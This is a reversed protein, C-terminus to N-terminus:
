FRYLISVGIEAEYDSLAIPSDSIGSNYKEYGAEAQLQWKDGFRWRGIAQIGASRYGGDLTTEPLGSNFSQEETIGFDRNVFDDSGFTVFAFLDLGMGPRSAAFTHGAALVGLWGIDSGGAMLRAAGWNSWDRGLARRVEFMGVIEEDTDGLGALAPSESEERGGEFRVGGQLLWLDNLRGRWGLEQGELFWMQNGNRRQIVFAPELETGYEDSGDYEAEYEVGAGLSFAWGDGASIDPVSPMPFLTEASAISGALAFALPILAKM